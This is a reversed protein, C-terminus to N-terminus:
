TSSGLVYLKTNDKCVIYPLPYPKQLCRIKNHLQEATFNKFDEVKIESMDPTRRKCYTAENEDQKYCSFYNQILIDDIMSMALTEIRFFIDDLSGQLSFRKQSVINGQDLKDNMRFLTVASWTEGNIIQNQIPSGGRYKPLPSPHVCICSANEIWKSSVIDSWGVFFVIDYDQPNLKDLEESSDCLQINHNSSLSRYINKSWNRYGCFLIDDM